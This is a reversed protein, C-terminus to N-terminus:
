EPEATLLLPMGNERAVDMVQQAKTEAVDRTYVGAVAAGKFHVTLMIHRAEAENKHFFRMLVFVVFEQTTYDDNHFIVKYRRPTASIPKDELEVDDGHEPTTPPGDPDNPDNPDGGSARSPDRDWLRGLGEPRGHRPRHLFTTSGGTPGTLSRLEHM